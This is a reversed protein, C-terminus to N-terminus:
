KQTRMCVIVDRNETQHLSDVQITTTGEALSRLPSEAFPVEILIDPSVPGFTESRLDRFKLNWNQDIWVLSREDVHWCLLNKM